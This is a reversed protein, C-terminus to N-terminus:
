GGVIVNQSGEILKGIGGCHQVADNMRHAPKNNIFVTASGAQAIWTNGGCCSSHVGPDGVRLAPLGNCNVDPSGATAPGICSHSCCLCGHGDSPVQSQDKLRGQGPM